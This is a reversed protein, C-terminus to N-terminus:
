SDLLHRAQEVWADGSPRGQWVVKGDRDLLLSFPVYPIGYDGSSWSEAGVPYNVGMSDVFQAVTARDESSLSLIVLGKPGLENQV